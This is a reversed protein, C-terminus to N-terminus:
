VHLCGLARLFSDIHFTASQFSPNTQVNRSERGHHLRFSLTAPVVGGLWTHDRKGPTALPKCVHRIGPFSVDLYPSNLEMSKIEPTDKASNLIRVGTM